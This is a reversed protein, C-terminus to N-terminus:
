EDQHATECLRSPVSAQLMHESVIAALSGAGCALLSPSDAKAPPVRERAIRPPGRFPPSRGNNTTRSASRARDPTIAPPVAGRNAAHWGPDRPLADRGRAITPDVIVGAANGGRIARSRTGQTCYRILDRGRAVGSRAPASDRRPAGKM